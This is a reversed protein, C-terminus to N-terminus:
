STPIVHSNNSSSKVTLSKVKAVTSANLNGIFPVVSVKASLKISKPAISEVTAIVEPKIKPSTGSGSGSAVILM